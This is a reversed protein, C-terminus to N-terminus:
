DLRCSAPTRANGGGRTLVWVQYVRHGHRPHSTSRRHLGHKLLAINTGLYIEICDRINDYCPEDRTLGRNM